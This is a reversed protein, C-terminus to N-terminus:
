QGGFNSLKIIVCVCGHVSNLFIIQRRCLRQYMYKVSMQLCLYITFAVPTYRNDDYSNSVTVRNWIKTLTTRMQSIDNCFTHM